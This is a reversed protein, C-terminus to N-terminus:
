PIETLDAGTPSQRRPQLVTSSTQANTRMTEKRRWWKPRCPGLSCTLGAACSGGLRHQGEPWIQRKGLEARPNREIRRKQAQM